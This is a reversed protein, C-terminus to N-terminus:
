SNGRSKRLGFLTGAFALGIGAFVIALSQEADAEVVSAMATNIPLIALFIASFIISVVLSGPERRSRDITCAKLRNSSDM